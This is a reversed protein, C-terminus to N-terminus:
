FISSNEEMKIMGKSMAGRWDEVRVSPRLPDMTREATWGERKERILYGRPFALMNCGRNMDSPTHVRHVTYSIAPQTPIACDLTFRLPLAAPSQCNCTGQVHGFRIYLVLM